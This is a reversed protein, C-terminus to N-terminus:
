LDTVLHTQILEYISLTKPESGKTSDSTSSRPLPHSESTRDPNEKALTRRTQMIITELVSHRHKIKEIARRIVEKNEFMEGKYASALHTRLEDLASSYEMAAVQVESVIGAIAGVGQHTGLLYRLVARNFELEAQKVKPKLRELQDVM